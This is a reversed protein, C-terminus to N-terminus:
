LSNRKPVEGSVIVQNMTGLWDYGPLGGGGLWPPPLNQGKVSFNQLTNHLRRPPQPM